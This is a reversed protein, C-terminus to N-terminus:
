LAKKENGTTEAYKLEARPIIAGTLSQDMAQIKSQIQAVTILFGKTRALDLAENIDARASAIDGIDVKVGALGVLNSITHKDDNEERSIQNSQLFYWKAESLRHLQIYVQALDSFNYSAEHYVRFRMNHKATKIISAEEVELSLQSQGLDVPQVIIDTSKKKNNTAAILRTLSNDRVPKLMPSPEHKKKFDAGFHWWQASASLSLVSFLIILTYRM